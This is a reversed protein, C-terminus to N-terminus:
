ILPLKYRSESRKHLLSSIKRSWKNAISIESTLSKGNEGDYIELFESAKGSTKYHLQLRINNTFSVNGKAGRINKSGNVVKCNDIESLDVFIKEENDKNAKVYLLKKSKEDIGFAYFDGWIEHNTLSINKENAFQNLIETLKKVKAKESIHYWTIPVFFTALAFFSIIVSPLDVKM